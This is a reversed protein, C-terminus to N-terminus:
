ALLFETVSRAVRELPAKEFPHPTRPLVELEGNRVLRAVEASEEVTVTSDRDGVAIRVPLELRTLRETTLDPSAGLAVMMERTRELVTTWGLATHRAELAQAFQPVKATIKAPDLMGTERVAGEPTWRFKTALTMVREVRDPHDGALHLAVYGGLSYGFFRARAISHRDLYALVSEAFHAARFPRDPAATVGHGDLELVHADVGDGLCARLPALQERSGVAGHLLVLVSVLNTAAHAHV